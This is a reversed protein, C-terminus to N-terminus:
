ESVGSYKIIPNNHFEKIKEALLMKQSMMLAGDVNEDMLSEIQKCIRKLDDCNEKTFIKESM